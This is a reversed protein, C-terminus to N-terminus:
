TKEQKIAQSFIHLHEEISIQHKYLAVIYQNPVRNDKYYKILERYKKITQELERLRSNIQKLVRNAEKIPVSHEEWEEKSQVKQATLRQKEATRWALDTTAVLYTKAFVRMTENVRDEDYETINKHLNIISKTVRADQPLTDKAINENNQM